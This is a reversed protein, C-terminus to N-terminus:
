FARKDVKKAEESFRQYTQQHSLTEVADACAVPSLLLPRTMIHRVPDYVDYPFDVRIGTLKEHEEISVSPTLGIGCVGNKIVEPQGDVLPYIVPVGFYLSEMCSLGFPETVPTSMYIDIRNFFPRM